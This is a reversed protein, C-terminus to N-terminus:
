STDFYAESVYRMFLFIEVLISESFSMYEVNGYSSFYSINVNQMRISQFSIYVAIGLLGFFYIHNGKGHTAFNTSSHILLTQLRYFLCLSAFPFGTHLKVVIIVPPQREEM